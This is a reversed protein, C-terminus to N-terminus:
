LTVLVGEEQNKPAAVAMDQKSMGGKWGSEQSLQVGAGKMTGEQARRGALMVSSLGRDTRTVLIQM